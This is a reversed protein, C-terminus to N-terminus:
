PREIVCDLIYEFRNTGEVYAVPDRSTWRGLNPCQDRHRYEYLAAGDVQRTPSVSSQHLFTWAFDGEADAVFGPDAASWPRGYPSNHFREAAAHLRLGEDYPAPESETWQGPESSYVRYRYQYLSADDIHALPENFVWRDDLSSERKFDLTVPGDAASSISPKTSRDM